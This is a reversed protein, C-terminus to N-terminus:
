FKPASAVLRKPTRKDKFATINKRDHGDYIYEFFLRDAGGYGDPDTNAPGNYKMITGKKTIITM